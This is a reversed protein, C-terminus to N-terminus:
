LLTAAGRTIFPKYVGNVITILAMFGVLHHGGTINTPKYVGHIGYNDLENYRGYVMTIPTIFWGLHVGRRGKPMRLERHRFFQGGGGARRGRIPGLPRQRGLRQFLAPATPIEHFFCPFNPFVRFVRPFYLFYISINSFWPFVSSFVHSFRHFFPSSGYSLLDSVFHVFKFFM